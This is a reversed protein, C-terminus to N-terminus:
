EYGKVENEITANENWTITNMMGAPKFINRKMYENYNMGSLKEIILALLCYATNSYRFQTAPIFYTSDINKIANYVDADHAHKMNTTNTYDYHDAVGSSHTLLEKITLVDAVKKNMGPFFKSLKDGLSLLHKEELQLIAVATFQKTLSGINFNSSATIKQKSDISVVGYNNQFIIKNDKIIAVSAGPLSDTYVTKLLSDIRKSNAQQAVSYICTCFCLVIFATKKM